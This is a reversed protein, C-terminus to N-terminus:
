TIILIFLLVGYIVAVLGIIWLWTNMRATAARTPGRDILIARVGLLAHSTVVLLFTIELILVLPNSLYNVVDQYTQLGGSVVFHNAVLHLVLLLILLIGTVAQALWALAARNPSTSLEM